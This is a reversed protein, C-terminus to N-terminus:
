LGYEKFRWIIINIIFELNTKVSVFSHRESNEYFETEVEGIKFRFRRAKIMIEGDILVDIYIWKSLSTGVLEDPLPINCEESQITDLKAIKQNIIKVYYM